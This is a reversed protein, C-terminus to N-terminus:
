CTYNNGKYTPVTDDGKWSLVDAMEQIRTSALKLQKQMMQIQGTLQKKGIFLNKVKDIM